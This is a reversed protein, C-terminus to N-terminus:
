SGSAKLQRVLDNHADCLEQHHDLIINLRSIHLLHLDGVKRLAYRRSIEERMFPKRLNGSKLVHRLVM